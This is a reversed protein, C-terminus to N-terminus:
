APGITRGGKSITFLTKGKLAAGSAGTVGVSPGSFLTVQRGTPFTQKCVLTLDVSDSASSYSVTFSRIPGCPRTDVRMRSQNHRLARRKTDQATVADLSLWGAECHPYRGLALM